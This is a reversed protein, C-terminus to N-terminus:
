MKRQRFNKLIKWLSDGQKDTIDPIISVIYDGEEQTIKAIRRAVLNCKGRTPDDWEVLYRNNFTGTFFSVAFPDRPDGDPWKTALVYDGIKLKTKKEIRRKELSKQVLSTKFLTKNRHFVDCNEAQTNNSSFSQLKEAERVWPPTKVACQGHDHSIENFYVCQGCTKREEDM